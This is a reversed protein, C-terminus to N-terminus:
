TKCANGIYRRVDRTIRGEVGKITLQTPNPQNRNDAEGREATEVGFTKGTL